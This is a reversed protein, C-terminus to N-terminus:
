IGTSAAVVRGICYFGIKSDLCYMRGSHSKSYLMKMNVVGYLEKGNETYIGFTVMLSFILLM